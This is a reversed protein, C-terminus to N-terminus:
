AAVGVKAPAAPRHLVLRPNFSLRTQHAENVACVWPDTAYYSGWTGPNALREPRAPALRVIPLGARMLMTWLPRTGTFIGWSKGRARGEEAIADLLPLAAAPRSCAMTVVEVLDSAAVDLGTRAALVRHIPADLYVQSFLGAAGDRVGAACIVAGTANTTVALEPAFDHVAAGYAQRYVAKIHDTAAQWLEHGSTIFEVRMAGIGAKPEEVEDHTAPGGSLFSFM